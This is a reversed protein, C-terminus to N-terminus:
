GAGRRGKGDLRQRGTHGEQWWRLYQQPRSGTKHGYFHDGAPVRGNRSRAFLALGALPVWLLTKFCLLYKSM